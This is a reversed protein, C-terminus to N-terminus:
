TIKINQVYMFLEGIYKKLLESSIFSKYLLNNEEFVFKPIADLGNIRIKINNQKAIKEWSQKIKKWNQFM